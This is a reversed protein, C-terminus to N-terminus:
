RQLFPRISTAICSARKELRFTTIISPLVSLILKVFNHDSSLILIPCSVCEMTVACWYQSKPLRRRERRWQFLPRINNSNSVRASLKETGHEPPCESALSASGRKKGDLERIKSVCLESPMQLNAPPDGPPSQTKGTEESWKGTRLIM